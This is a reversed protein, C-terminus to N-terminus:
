PTKGEPQHQHAVDVDVSVVQLKGGFSVTAAVAESGTAGSRLADQVFAAVEDLTLVQKKPAKHEIKRSSM